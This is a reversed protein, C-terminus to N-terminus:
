PRPWHSKIIQFDAGDTANAIPLPGRSSKFRSWHWKWYTVHGDGFAANAGLNHQEGPRTGWQDTGSSEKVEILFGPGGGSVRLSDIFTFVGSPSPDVLDSVKHKMWKESYWEGSRTGNVTHNLLANLQYTRTRLLHPYGDVTSRDAPCRYIAASKNYSYLLGLQLNATNTDRLASGVVWSPEVGTFDGPMGVTTSPPMRDNNDDAYMVWCIALQKLNNWCVASHAKSKAKSLAPLLLSALIAIIAIVVLLEILTFGARASTASCDSCRSPRAPANQKLMGTKMLM